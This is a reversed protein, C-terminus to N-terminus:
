AIRRELLDHRLGQLRARSSTEICARRPGGRGVAGVEVVIDLEYGGSLARDACAEELVDALRSAVPDLESRVHAEAIEREIQAVAVDVRGEAGRKEGRARVVRARIRATRDHHVRPVSN